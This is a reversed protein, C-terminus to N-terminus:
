PHTQNVQCYIISLITCSSLISRDYQVLYLYQSIIIKHQLILIINQYKQETEVVHKTL